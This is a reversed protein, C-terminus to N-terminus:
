RIPVLDNGEGARFSALQRRIPRIRGTAVTIAGPESRLTGKDLRQVPAPQERDIGAAVVDRDEPHRRTAQMQPVDDRRPTLHRDADGDMSPHDIDQVSTANLVDTAEEEM